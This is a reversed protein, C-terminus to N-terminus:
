VIQALASDIQVAIHQIFCTLSIRIHRLCQKIRAGYKVASSRCRNHSDAFPSPFSGIGYYAVPFVVDGCYNIPFSGIEAITSSFSIFYPKQTHNKPAAQQLLLAAGKPKRAMPASQYPFTGFVDPRYIQSIHYFFKLNIFVISLLLCRNYLSSLERVLNM